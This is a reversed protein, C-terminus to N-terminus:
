NPYRIMTESYKFNKKGGTNNEFGFQKYFQKLRTVSTAGFDISPSLLIIRKESDAVKCIYDMIKTGLGQKRLEKPVFIKSIRFTGDFAAYIDLEVNNLKAFNRIEEIM